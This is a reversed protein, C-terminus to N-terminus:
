LENNLRVSCKYCIRGQIDKVTFITTKVSDPLMFPYWSFTGLGDKVEVERVPIYGASCEVLYTGNCNVRKGLNSCDLTCKLYKGDDAVTCNVSHQLQLFASRDKRQMWEKDLHCLRKADINTFVQGANDVAFSACCDSVKDTDSWCYLQALVTIGERNAWDPTHEGTNGCVLHQPIIAVRGNPFSANAVFCINANSKFWTKHIPNNLDFVGEAVVQYYHGNLNLIQRFLKRDTLIDNSDAVNRNDHSLMPYLVRVVMTNETQVVSIYKYKLNDLHICRVPRM